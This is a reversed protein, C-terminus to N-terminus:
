KNLLAKAIDGIRVVEELCCGYIMSGDELRIVQLRNNDIIVKYGDFMKIVMEIEM